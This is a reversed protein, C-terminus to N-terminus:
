QHMYVLGRQQIHLTISAHEQQVHLTHTGTHRAYACSCIRMGMSYVYRIRLYVYAHEHQIHLTSVHQQIDLTHALPHAVRAYLLQYESALVTAYLLQPM